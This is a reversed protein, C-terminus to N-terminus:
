NDDSRAAAPNPITRRPAADSPRERANLRTLAADRLAGLM